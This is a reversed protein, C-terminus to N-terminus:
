LKKTLEMILSQLVLAKTRGSSKIEIDTAHIRELANIIESPKYRLAKTIFSQMDRLPIKLNKMIETDTISSKKMDIAKLAMRFQWAIAGVIAPPEIGENLLRSLIELSRGLDKDLIADSLNFSTHLRSDGVIYNVDELNIEKREGLFLVIKQLENVITNLDNGALDILMHISPDTIRLGRSAIWKKIWSSLRDKTLPYFEVFQAHGKLRNWIPKRKPTDAKFVICTSSVPNSIYPTLADWESEPIREAEKVIIFRWESFAPVTHAINLIDKSNFTDAYFLDYNFDTLGTKFLEKKIRELADEMLYSEDGYFIYTNAIKGQNIEEIFEYYKM